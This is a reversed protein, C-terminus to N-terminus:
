QSRGRKIQSAIREHYEQLPTVALSGQQLFEIGEAAAVAGAVTTFYPVRSELASRRIPFSDRHAGSGRPTNIVIHIDGARIADVIHPSGEQVKHVTEVPVGHSALFQSTGSTAVVRFGCKVLRRAVPLLGTKDEDPISLFATGELPLVTGAALQAKAFAVGFSADIGMVEGTSKM